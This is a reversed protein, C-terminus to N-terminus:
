FQIMQGEIKDRGLKFHKRRKIALMRKSRYKSEICELRLVIKMTAKAKKMAVKSGTTVSSEKFVHSDKAKKYQTM